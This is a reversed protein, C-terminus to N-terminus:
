TPKENSIPRKNFVSKHIVVTVNKIIVSYLHRRKIRSDRRWEMSSDAGKNNRNALSPVIYKRRHTYKSQKNYRSM